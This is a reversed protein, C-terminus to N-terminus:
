SWKELGFTGSAPIPLLTGDGMADLTNYVWVNGWWNLNVNKYQVAFFIIVGSFAVGAGLAASLVYNYKEWWATKYKRLYWMFAFSFYMGGWIQSLNYPAWNLFGTIVLSPHTFKLWSLPTFVAYNLPAFLATPLSARAAERVRPGFRKTTWWALGLLFGFLFTYKMKPYLQAFM